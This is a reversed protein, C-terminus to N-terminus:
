DTLGSAARDAQDLEEMIKKYETWAEPPLHSMSGSVRDFWNRKPNTLQDLQMKLRAVEGELITLRDEITLPKLPEPM